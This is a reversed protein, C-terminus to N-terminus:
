VYFLFKNTCLVPYLGRHFNIYFFFFYYFNYVSTHWFTQYFYLIFFFCLLLLLLLFFMKIKATLTFQHLNDADATGPTDNENRWNHTKRPGSLDPARKRGNANRAGSRETNWATYRAVSKRKVARKEWLAVRSGLDAWIRICWKSRNRFLWSYMLFKFRIYSILRRTFKPLILFWIKKQLLTIEISSVITDVYRLKVPIFLQNRDYFWEFNWKRMDYYIKIVYFNVAVFL